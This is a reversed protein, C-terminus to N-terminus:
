ALQTRFRNRYCGPTKLSIVRKSGCATGYWIPQGVCRASGAIAQPRSSRIVGSAAGCDDHDEYIRERRKLSQQESQFEPRSHRRLLSSHNLVTLRFTRLWPSM